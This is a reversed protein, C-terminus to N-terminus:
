SSGFQFFVLNQIVENTRKDFLVVRLGSTDDRLYGILLFASDGNTVSRKGVLRVDKRSMVM